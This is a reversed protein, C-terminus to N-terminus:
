KRLLDDIPLFYDYQKIEESMYEGKEWYVKYAKAWLVSTIIRYTKDKIQIACNNDMAIAIISCTKMMRKLDDKRNSESSYHPCYLAEIFGLGRVKVLQNPNKLFKRSDSNGYQFRCIAGASLWCLVIDKKLAKRLLKDIGFKRWLNMMALTNGGWVYIIDVSLILQELKEKILDWKTLLLVEVSCGLDEFHKKFSKIYDLSDWSATPIFMIKPHEKGSFSIIEKDLFLTTKERIEWGWISIIKVM